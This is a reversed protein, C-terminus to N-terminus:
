EPRQRGPLLPNIKGLFHLIGIAACTIVFPVLPVFFRSNWDDCTLMVSLSFIIMMATVYAFFLKNKKHLVFLGTVAFFYLLSYFVGLFVNHARSYYPRQMNWFSIFRKGMLELSSGPNQYIYQGVEQFTQGATTPSILTKVAPDPINCIVHKEAFPKIFDLGIANKMGAQAMIFFTTLGTALVLLTLFPKEHLRFYLILLPLMIMLFYLGSPRTFVLWIFAVALFLYHYWQRFSWTFLIWTFIIAISSFVTETILHATWRQYHFSTILLFTALVSIGFNQTLKSNLKFFSITALGNLLLQILYMAMDPFGTKVSLARILIYGSYLYLRNETIKGQEWINKAERYYIPADIDLM